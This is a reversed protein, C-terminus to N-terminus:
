EPGRHAVGSARAVVAWLPDGRYGTAPTRLEVVAAGFGGALELYRSVVEGHQEDTTALWGRVAKTPFCRNSYTIVVPADPKLVRAVEALVAVPRVLYDISVCCTVADFTDDAFPLSADVNLDQVVRAEAAENADLEAPNMGLVTLRQPPISFHSVWSSMIDLVATPRPAAGDIGLQSYLDGVARVAGADIHTVFRPTRYFAGDSSGDERDFFWEPFPAHTM